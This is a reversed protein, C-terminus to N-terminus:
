MYMIYENTRAALPHFAQGRQNGLYSNIRLRRVNVRCQRVHTKYTAVSSPRRSLFTLRWWTHVATSKPIVLNAQGKDIDLHHTHVRTHSGCMNNCSTIVFHTIIANCDTVRLAGSHALIAIPLWGAKYVKELRSAVKSLKCVLGIHLHGGRTYTAKFRHM